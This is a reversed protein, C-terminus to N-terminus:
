EPCFMTTLFQMTDVGDPYDAPGPRQAEGFDVRRSHELTRTVVCQIDQDHRMLYDEVGSLEDYFSYLLDPLAESREEGKAQRFVFFRGDLFAEGRMQLLARHHRFADLYGSHSIERERFIHLLRQVPFGAPLFVRSVNRCGMGFFLFVDDSLARLDDDTENGSLVAVSTRNRRLLAPRGPFMKSFYRNANDSGTAILADPEAADFNGVLTVAVQPDIAWLQGVVWEVLVRDKSSCKLLCRCGAALVCLLDTFGVLPINGAAIVAVNKPEGAPLSYGSLWGELAGRQLMRDAIARIAREIGEATFWPNKAIADEIVGFPVLLRGDDSVLRSGLASFLEVTNM